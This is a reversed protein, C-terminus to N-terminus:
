NTKEERQNNCNFLFAGFVKQCNLNLNYKKNPNNNLTQKTTTTRTPLGKKVHNNPSFCRNNPIAYTTQQM